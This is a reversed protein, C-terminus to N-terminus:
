LLTSSNLIPSRHKDSSYDLILKNIDKVLDSEWIILVQYGALVAHRNKLEDFEWKEKVIKEGSSGKLILDNPKYILPNGHWYDGYVEIIKKTNSIFIDYAFYRGSKKPLKFEIAIEIDLEQCITVVKRHISSYINKGRSTTIKYPSEVGYKKLLTQVSKRKVSERQFVNTIGEEKLLRKEWRKRSPHNKSFNHHKVKKRCIKASESLTRCKFGVKKMLTYVIAYSNLKYAKQIDIASMKLHNYLFDFKQLTMKRCFKKWKKCTKKHIGLQGRKQAKFNCKECNMKCRLYM